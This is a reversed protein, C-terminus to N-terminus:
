VVPIIAHLPIFIILMLYANKSANLDNFKPLHISLEFSVSIGGTAKLCSSCQTTTPMPLPVRLWHQLVSCKSQVSDSLSAASMCICTLSWCKSLFGPVIFSLPSQPPVMWSNLSFRNCFLLDFRQFLEFFLVQLRKTRKEFRVTQLLQRDFDSGNATTVWSELCSGPGIFLLCYCM